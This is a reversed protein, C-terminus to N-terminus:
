SGDGCMRELEEPAPVGEGLRAYPLAEIYKSAVERCSAISGRERETEILTMFPRAYLMGMNRSVADLRITADAYGEYSYTDLLNARLTARDPAPNEIPVIRWFLGDLRSFEQFGGMLATPITAAFCLPRRWQNTRLIDLMVLDAPLLHNQMSPVVRLMITESIPTGDPIGLQEASGVVPVVLTTDTLERPALALREEPSMSIPFSPDRRLIQDIYFFTNALSRNVIQVDPRVGEVAQIYWLPFTDNDGATFLVADRPLGRLMNTAFDRAFYRRSADKAGWNRALQSAPALALVLAAVILVLRRRRATHRAVEALVMGLGFAAAIGFTVCVALYHRDLPRFFGAPINFYLVTAAAHLLLVSTFAAGLRRNRRWLFVLGVMGGLAPLLGLPGLPGNWSFFNAGLVRLLDAVQVSWFPAKRPFFDVLFGGGLMELSVYDWFRALNSADGMNLVSDTTAAIPIIALQATLGVAMGAAGTAWAVKDGLTRPHRLVIWALVGPLLLANTRHVCFDLGFLLGLLALWRWADRREAEDWWKLMTWLILGTVVATLVYPTYKIAHEWLTEGFALALAGLIAGAVFAHRKTPSAAEGSSQDMNGLRVAILYVLAAAIASLVGAFLNLIHAPSGVPLRTVLWGLLTLLLSGPPGTVGLTSAALSYQSSDWWTITPYATLWFVIAATATVAIIGLARYSLSNM